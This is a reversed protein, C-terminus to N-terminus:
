KNTKENQDTQQIFEAKDISSVDVGSQKLVYILYDVTMIKFIPVKVHQLERVILLLWATNLSQMNAYSIFTRLPKIANGDNTIRFNDDIEAWLKQCLQETAIIVQVKFYDNDHINESPVFANIYAGRTRIKYQIIQRKRSFWWDGLAENSLDWEQSRLLYYTYLPNSNKEQYSSSIFKQPELNKPIFTLSILILILSLIYALDLKRVEM